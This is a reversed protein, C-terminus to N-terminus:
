EPVILLRRVPPAQATQRWSEGADQSEFVHGETDALAVHSPRVPDIDIADVYPRFRAPIGDILRRWTLGGDDSRFIGCEAGVDARHFGGPGTTAAATFLQEPREPNVALPRAYGQGEFGDIRAWTRGYDESRGFGHRTAAYVVAGRRSNVAVSHVDDHIGGHVNEWTEGGDETRVVGGVEIALYIRRPDHPDISITRVHGKADSWPVSWGNAESMRRIAPEERWTRGGDESRFLASPEMGALLRDQDQPHVALSSLEAFGGITGAAEWSRAADHSRFVRGDTAAAYYVGPDGPARALALFDGPEGLPSTAGNCRYLGERTALLLPM